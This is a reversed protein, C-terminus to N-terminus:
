VIRFKFAMEGSEVEVLTDKMSSLIQWATLYLRFANIQVFLCVVFVVPFLVLVIPLAIVLGSLAPDLPSLQSSVRLTYFCYRCLSDNGPRWNM